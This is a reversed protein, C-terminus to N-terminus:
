ESGLPISGDMSPPVLLGHWHVSTAVTMENKVHIRAIDGENFRLTPGPISGNITMGDATKERIITIPEQAITLSYERVAGFVPASLIIYSAVIALIIHNKMYNLTVEKALGILLLYAWFM